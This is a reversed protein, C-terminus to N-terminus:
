WNSISIIVLGTISCILVTDVFPIIVSMFAGMAPAEKNAGQLFTSIGMGSMHSFIGRSVGFQMAQLVTYGAIGGGNSSPLFAYTFVQGLADITRAPDSLLIVIGTLMYVFIVVPSLASCYNVIKKLGGLIIMGVIFTM